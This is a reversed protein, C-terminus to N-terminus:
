IKFYTSCIQLKSDDDRTQLLKANSDFSKNVTQSTFRNNRYQEAITRMGGKSLDKQINAKEFNNSLTSANSMKRM